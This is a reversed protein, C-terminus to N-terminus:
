LRAHLCFFTYVNLLFTLFMFMTCNVTNIRWLREQTQNQFLLWLEHFNCTEDMEDAIPLQLFHLFLAPANSFTATPLNHYKPHWFNQLVNLIAFMIVIM